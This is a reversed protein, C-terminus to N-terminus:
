LLILLPALIGLPLQVLLLSVILLSGDHFLILTGPVFDPLSGLVLRPPLGRLLHQEVVAHTVDRPQPWVGRRPRVIFELERGRRELVQFLLAGDFPAGQESERHGHWTRAAPTRRGSCMCSDGLERGLLAGDTHWGADGEAEGLARPQVAQRGDVLHLDAVEPQGSTALAPDLQLRSALAEVHAAHLRCVDVQLVDQLFREATVRGQGLSIPQRDSVVSVGVLEHNTLQFRFRVQRQEVCIQCYFHQRAFPRLRFESSLLLLLGAFLSGGMLGLLSLAQSQVTCPCLSQQKPWLWLRRRIEHLDHHSQGQSTPQRSAELPVRRELLHKVPHLGLGVAPHSGLLEPQHLLPWSM